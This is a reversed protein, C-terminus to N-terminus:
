LKAKPIVRRRSCRKRGKGGGSGPLPERISRFQVDNDERIECWERLM